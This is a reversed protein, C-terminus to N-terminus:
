KENCQFARCRFEVHVWVMTAGDGDSCTVRSVAYLIDVSMASTGEFGETGSVNIGPESLSRLALENKCGVEPEICASGRQIAMISHFVLHPMPPDRCTWTEGELKRKTPDTSETKREQALKHSSRAMLIAM